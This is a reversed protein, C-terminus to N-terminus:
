IYPMTNLKEDWYEKRKERWDTGNFKKDYFTALREFVKQWPSKKSEIAEFVDAMFLRIDGIKDKPAYYAAGEDASRKLDESTLAHATLMLAPINRSRAIKLLDYGQVGMIDLVAIDYYKEEMLKKADEFSSAKDIECIDLIEVLTELIDEEDDVILVRKGKIIEEADM